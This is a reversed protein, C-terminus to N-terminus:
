QVAAVFGFLSAMGSEIALGVLLDAVVLTVAFAIPVRLGLRAVIFSYRLSLAFSALWLINTLEKGALGTLSLLATFAFPVIVLVSTWNRAVIYAPYTEGIRLQKAALALIIPFTVWQLALSAANELVFSGAPISGPPAMRYDALVLLAFSPLVLWIARFSRWFGDVSVDLQGM